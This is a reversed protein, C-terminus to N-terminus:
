MLVKRNYVPLNYQNYNTERERVWQRDRERKLKKIEKCRWREKWVENYKIKVSFLLLKNVDNLSNWSEIKLSIQLVWGAFNIEIVIIYYLIFLIQETYFLYM